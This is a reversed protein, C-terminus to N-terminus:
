NRAEREFKTYGNPIAFLDDSLKSENVEKVELKTLETGDEQSEVGLLPFAGTQNPLKLFFVALKDKRNLTKLMPVFFDFNNNALWYSIERNDEASIVKWEKCDLGLIKKENSTEEISLDTKRSPRKNPVEIFMKREPSLALVENESTNVLMIGQVNGDEDIEEIRVKDGKVHYTYNATIPGVSKKFSITGEFSQANATAAFGFCLAIAVATGVLNRLKM